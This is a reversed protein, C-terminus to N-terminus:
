LCKFLNTWNSLVKIWHNINSLDKIIYVIFLKMCHDFSSSSRLSGLRGCICMYVVNQQPFRTLTSSCLWVWNLPYTTKKKKEKISKTFISVITVCKVSQVFNHNSVIHESFFVVKRIYRYQFRWLFEYFHM